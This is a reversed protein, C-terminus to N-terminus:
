IKSWAATQYYIDMFALGDENCTVFRNSLFLSNSRQSWDYGQLFKRERTLYTLNNSLLFAIFIFIFDINLATIISLSILQKSMSWDYIVM